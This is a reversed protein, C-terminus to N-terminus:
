MKAARIKFHHNKNRYHQKSGLRISHRLFLCKSFVDVACSLHREDKEFTTTLYYIILVVMIYILKADVCGHNWAIEWRAM